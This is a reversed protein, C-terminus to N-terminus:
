WARARAQHPVRAFSYHGGSKPEGGSDRTGGLFAPKRGQSCAGDSTRARLVPPFPAILHVSSVLGKRLVERVTKVVGIRQSPHRVDGVLRDIKM